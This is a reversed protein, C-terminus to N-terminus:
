VRKLTTSSAPFTSGPVAYFLSRALDATVEVPKNQLEELEATVASRKARLNSDGCRRVYHEAAREELPSLDPGKCAAEVDSYDFRPPESPPQNKPKPWNGSLVDRITEGVKFAPNYLPMSFVLPQEYGKGILTGVPHDPQLDNLVKCVAAAHEDWGSMLVVPRKIVTSLHRGTPSGSVIADDTYFFFPM